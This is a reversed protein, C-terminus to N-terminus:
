IDIGEQPSYTKFDTFFEIDENFGFDDMPKILDDDATNIVNVPNGSYHEAIETDYQGRAVIIDNNNIGEIRMVEDNVQIYTRLELNAGSAVKMLTKDVPLTATLNTTADNNYDKIAAPTVTYRMERPAKIATSYDIQVKKILGGAEDTPLENYFYAKATFTLDYVIFRRTSFDGEYDDNFSIDNLCFPIDRKENIEPILNITLTFCPAFVPLIQELIQLVDDQLKAAFSLRFGINYPVPMFMKKIKDGNMVCFKTIPAIKRSPDYEYSIIEFSLRPLTIAVNRDFNPQQEIRALFKQIPGYAIPVKLSSLVDDNDDAKHRVDINNFMTGFAIVIKRIIEHYYYEGFM